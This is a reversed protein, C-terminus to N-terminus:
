LSWVLQTERSEFALILSSLSGAKEVASGQRSSPQVARVEYYPLKLSEWTGLIGWDREARSESGSRTVVCMAQRSTVGSKSRANRYQGEKVLCFPGLLLDVKPIRDCPKSNQEMRKTRNKRGAVCHESGISQWDKDHPNEGWQTDNTDKM